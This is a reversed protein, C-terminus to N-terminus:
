DYVNHMINKLKSKPKSDLHYEIFQFKFCSIHLM